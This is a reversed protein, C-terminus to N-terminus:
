IIPNQFELVENQLYKPHQPPLLGSGPSRPPQSADSPLYPCSLCQSLRSETGSRFGPFAPGKQAQVAMRLLDRAAKQRFGIPGPSRREEAQCCCCSTHKLDKKLRPTMHTCQFEASGSSPSSGLVPLRAEHKAHKLKPM